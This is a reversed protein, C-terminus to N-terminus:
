RALLLVKSGYMTLCLHSRVHVLRLLSYIRISRIGLWIPARFNRSWKTNFCGYHYSVARSNATNTPLMKGINSIQIARLDHPQASTRELSSHMGQAIDDFTNQNIMRELIKLSITATKSRVFKAFEDGAQRLHREKTWLHVLRQSRVQQDTPVFKKKRDDDKKV